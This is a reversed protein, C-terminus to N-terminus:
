VVSKRDKVAGRKQSWAVGSEGSLHIRNIACEGARYRNAELGDRVDALLEQWQKGGAQVTAESM